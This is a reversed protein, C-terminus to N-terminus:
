KKVNEVEKPNIPGCKECCYYHTTCGEITVKGGCIKCKM